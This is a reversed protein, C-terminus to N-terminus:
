EAAAGRARPEGVDTSRCKPCRTPLPEVPNAPDKVLPPEAFIHGCSYCQVARRLALEGCAPCARPLDGAPQDAFVKQCAQCILTMTREPARSGCGRALLILALIGAVTALLVTQKNTLGQPGSPKM